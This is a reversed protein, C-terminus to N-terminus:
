AGAGPDTCATGDGAGRGAALLAEERRRSETIASNICRVTSRFSWYRQVALLWFALSALLVGGRLAQEALSGSLDSSTAYATLLVPPSGGFLAALFPSPGGSKIWSRPLPAGDRHYLARATETGGQDVMRLFEEWRLSGPVATRLAPALWLSIYAALKYVQAAHDIFILWLFSSAVALGVVVEPLKDFLTLGAGLVTLDIAILAYALNIRTVIEQRLQEFEALQVEVSQSM